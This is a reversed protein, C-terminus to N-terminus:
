GVIKAIHANDNIDRVLAIVKKSLEKDFVGAMGQDHIHTFLTDFMVKPEMTGNKVLYEVVEDLFAMQEPHLPAEALFEAFAAKAANRILGV